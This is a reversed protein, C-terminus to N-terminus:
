KWLSRISEKKEEELREQKRFGIRKKKRNGYSKTFQHCRWMWSCWWFRRLPFVCNTNKHLEWFDPAERTHMVKIWMVWFISVLSMNWHLGMPVSPDSPNDAGEEGFNKDIHGKKSSGQFNGKQFLYGFIYMFILKRYSYTLIFSLM